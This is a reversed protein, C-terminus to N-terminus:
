SVKVKWLKLPSNLFNFNKGVAFKPTNENQVGSIHEPVFIKPKPNFLGLLFVNCV